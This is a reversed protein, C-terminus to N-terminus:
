AAKNKTNNLYVVFQNDIVYNKTQPMELLIGALKKLSSIVQEAEEDTYHECGRYSRLKEPTLGTEHNDPLPADQEHKSEHKQPKIVTIASEIKEIQQLM